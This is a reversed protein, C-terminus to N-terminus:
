RRANRASANRIDVYNLAIHRATNDDGSCLARIIHVGADLKVISSASASLEIPGMRELRKIPTAVLPFDRQLRKQDESLSADDFKIPDYLYQPIWILERAVTNEDVQITVIISARLQSSASAAYGNATILLNTEQGEPVTIKAEAKGDGCAQGTFTLFPRTELDNLRQEHRAFTISFLIYSAVAGVLVGTLVNVLVSKTLDNWDIKMTTLLLQDLLFLYAM